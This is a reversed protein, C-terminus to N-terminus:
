LKWISSLNYSIYFMLVQPTLVNSMKLTIRSLSFILHPCLKTQSWWSALNNLDSLISWYKSKMNKLTRNINSVYLLSEKIFKVINNSNIPIIVQKKSPGKTTMQIRPKPNLSGKIINQIQDIKKTDLTPFVDKIKIVEITNSAPKSAQVYLKQAPKVVPTSKINKFYKSIQNVEKQSKASISPLIREISAPVSKNKNTQDSNSVPKVKSTFKALIKQRLTYFNKDAM